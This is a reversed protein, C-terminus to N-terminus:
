GAHSGEAEGRANQDDGSAHGRGFGRLDQVLAGGADEQFVTRRARSASAMRLTCAPSVQISWRARSPVYNLQGGLGFHLGAFAERGAFVIDKASDEFAEAVFFDARAQPIESLETFAAM